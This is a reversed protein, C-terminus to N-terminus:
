PVVSNLYNVISYVQFTKTGVAFRSQGESLSEPNATITWHNSHYSAELSLFSM